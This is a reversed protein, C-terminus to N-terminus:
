ISPGLKNKEVYVKSIKGLVELLILVRQEGTEAEFIGELGELPGELIKLIEGKRFVNQQEVNVCENPDEADKIAGIVEDPIPAMYHGFRVLGTVGRTSRIPSVDETLPNTRVFLYRPFLPEITEVWRGRQRRSQKIKPLYTEYSQRAMHEAAIREQRPKTHIAYWHKTERNMEM